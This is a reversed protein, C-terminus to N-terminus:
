MDYFYREPIHHTLVHLGDGVDKREDEPLLTLIEAVTAESQIYIDPILASEQWLNILLCGKDDM